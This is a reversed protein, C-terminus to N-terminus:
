RRRRKFWIFAGTGFLVLPLIFLFGAAISASALPTLDLKSDPAVKAPINILDDSRGLWQVINVGLDLNGGNGLFANSLFDGDGVVVVRQTFPQAKTKEASGARQDPAPVNSEKGPEAKQDPAPAAPAKGPTAKQEPAPLTAAQGPEAKQDPAAKGPEAPKDPAVLRTLAYGITLPGQREGQDPEFQLKGEIAGTETWSRSLTELLPEREFEGEAQADIAAASPFLAVEQFGLTIPPPPYEAVLAFTPDDIGLLQTSADVVTGPLFKVGLQGALAALGHLDGPDALWLLNGGKKVYAEIQKAEGPLLDARPGALVLVDTNDPIQPTAALNLLSVVVGKRELEDGFQGLDHNAQGVPSREGHGELFVVHREEATALRQLANTLAAEGAEQVKETRGQYEVVLEGDIAIGLERVKDPQTDPNVFALSLDQKYRSYRGVQDAIRERIQPNERAYATVTVPGKLLDLLKRSGESLTYRHSNTWDSQASYRTSLWGLLGVAALFLLSFLLNQLRLELHTKRNIKM